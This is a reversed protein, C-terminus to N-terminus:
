GIQRCDLCLKASTHTYIEQIPGISTNKLHRFREGVGGGGYLNSPYPSVASPLRPFFGAWGEIGKFPDEAKEGQRLYM